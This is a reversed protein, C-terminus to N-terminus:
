FGNDAGGEFGNRGFGDVVRMGGRSLSEQFM